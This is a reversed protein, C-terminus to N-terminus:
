MFKPQSDVLSSRFTLQYSIAKPKLSRALAGSLLLSKRDTLGILGAPDKQCQRKAM